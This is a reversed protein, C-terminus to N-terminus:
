QRAVCRYTIRFGRCGDIEKVSIDVWDFDSSISNCYATAAEVVNLPKVKCADIWHVPAEPATVAVPMSTTCGTFVVFLAVLFKKM